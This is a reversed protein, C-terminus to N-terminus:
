RNFKIKIKESKVLMYDKLRQQIIREPYSCNIYYLSELHGISGKSFLQYTNGIKSINLKKDEIIKLNKEVFSENIDDYEDYSKCYFEMSEQSGFAFLDCIVNTHEFYHVSKLNHNYYMNDCAWCSTGYDEHTHEGSNTVFIIKNNNIENILTYDLLFTTFNLDFRLKIVCDYKINNKLSYNKLLEYSKKVSYLQSKIFIEPSSYNFYTNKETDKKIDLLFKKNNEILYDKVNNISAVVKEVTEKNIADDYNVENGKLGINDWTHIFVDIDYYDKLNNLSNVINSNRIHGSIIVAIKKDKLSIPRNKLNKYEACSLIEKEFNNYGKKGHTEWEYDSFDRNLHKNFLHKLEEKTM